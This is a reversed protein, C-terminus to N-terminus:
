QAMYLYNQTQIRYKYEKNKIRYETNKNQMGLICSNQELQTSARGGGWDWDMCGKRSFLKSILLAM